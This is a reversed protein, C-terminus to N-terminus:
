RLNNTASILEENGLQKMPKQAGWDVILPNGPDESPIRINRPNINNLIKGTKGHLLNCALKYRNRCLELYLPYTETDRLEVLDRGHIYQELLVQHDSGIFGENLKSHNIVQESTGVLYPTLAALDFDMRPLIEHAFRKPSFRKFAKAVLWIDHNGNTLVVLFSQKFHRGINLLDVGSVKGTAEGSIHEISRWSEDKKLIAAVAEQVVEEAIRIGM